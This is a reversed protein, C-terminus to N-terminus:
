LNQRWKIVATISGNITVGLKLLEHKQPFNLQNMLGLHTMATYLNLLITFYIYM